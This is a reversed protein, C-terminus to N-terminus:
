IQRHVLHPAPAPSVVPARDNAPTMVDPLDNVLNDTAVQAAFTLPHIPRLYKRRLPSRKLAALLLMAPTARTRKEAQPAAAKRSQKYKDAAGRNLVSLASILAASLRLGPTAVKRWHQELLTKFHGSIVDDAANLGASVTVASKEIGFLSRPIGAEEGLRRAIPRDYDGGVSWPRLEESQSIAIIDAHRQWGIFPVPFNVWGTRIRMTQMSPGVNDRRWTGTPRADRDWMTDGHHGLLVLRGRMREAFPYFCIEEALASAYFLREASFGSASYDRRGIAHVRLGLIAAAESVDESGQEAGRGDRISLAEDVGMGRVLAAIGTSDYGRSLTLLPTYARNAGAGSAAFMAAIEERLFGTYHEFSTFPPPARYQAVSLAGHEDFTAIANYLVHLTGKGEFPIARWHSDITEFEWPYFLYDPKLRRHSNRLMLPLSNSAWVIEDDQLVWVRDLTNTATHISIVGDSWDM